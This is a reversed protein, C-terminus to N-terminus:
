NNMALDCITILDEHRKETYEQLAKALRDDVAGKSPQFTPDVKKSHLLQDLVRVDELGCNLGQGYFPVM